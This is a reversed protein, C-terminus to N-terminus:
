ELDTEVDLPIRFPKTTGMFVLDIRAMVRGGPGVVKLYTSRNTEELDDDGTLSTSERVEEDGQMPGEGTKLWRMSFGTRFAIPQLYKNYPQAENNLWRYVTPNTVNTLAVVEDVSLGATEIAYAVRQAKTELAPAETQMNYSSTM